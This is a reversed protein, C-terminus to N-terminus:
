LVRADLYGILHSMGTTEVWLVRGMRQGNVFLDGDKIAAGSGVDGGDFCQRLYATSWLKEVPDAVSGSQSPNPTAM